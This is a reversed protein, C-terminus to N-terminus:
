LKPIMINDSQDENSCDLDCADLDVGDDYVYLGSLSLLADDDFSSTSRCDGKSAM